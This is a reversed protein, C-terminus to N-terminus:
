LRGALSPFAVGFVAVFMGICQTLEPYLPHPLGLWDFPAYPYVIVATGLVINYVAAALLLNRM